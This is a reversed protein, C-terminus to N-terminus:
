PELIDTPLGRRALEAILAEGTLEVEVKGEHTHTHQVPLAPSDPDVTVIDPNKGHMIDKVEKYTANEKMARAFAAYDAAQEVTIEGTIGFHKKIQESNKGKYVMKAIELLYTNKNRRGAPRGNRNINEPNTHFGKGQLNDINSM